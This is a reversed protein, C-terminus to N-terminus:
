GLAADEQVETQPRALNEKTWVPGGKQVHARHLVAQQYFSFATRQPRASDQSLARLDPFCHVCACTEVPNSDDSPERCSSYNSGSPCDNSSRAAQSGPHGLDQGPQVMSEQKHDGAKHPRTESSKAKGGRLFLVLALSLSFLLLGMCTALLSYLQITSDALGPPGRTNVVRRTVGALLRTSTVPSPLTSCHQSCEAPHRGCIKACRVCKKVLRDFYHGPTALCLASECYSACRPIVHPQRCMMRCPICSKTLGDFHEGERCRGAM